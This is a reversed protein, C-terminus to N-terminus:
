QFAQPSASRANDEPLDQAPSATSTRRKADLFVGAKGTLKTFRSSLITIEPSIRPRQERSNLSQWNQSRHVAVSHPHAFIGLM